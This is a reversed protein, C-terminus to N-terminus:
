AQSCITPASLHTLVLDSYQLSTQGESLNNQSTLSLSCKCPRVPLPLAVCVCVHRPSVSPLVRCSLCEQQAVVVREFVLESSNKRVFLQCTQIKLPPKEVTKKMQLNLVNSYILTNWLWLLRLTVDQSVFITFICGCFECETMKYYCVCPSSIMQRNLKWSHKRNEDEEELTRCLM